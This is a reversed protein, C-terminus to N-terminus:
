LLFENGPISTIYEGSSKQGIMHRANLIIRGSRITSTSASTQGFRAAMACALPVDIANTLARRDGRESRLNLRKRQATAGVKRRSSKTHTWSADSMLRHVPNPTLRSRM